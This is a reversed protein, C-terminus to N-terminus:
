WRYLDAVYEKPYVMLDAPLEVFGDTGVLSLFDGSGNTPRPTAWLRGWEDPVLCVPMFLTLPVDSRVAASLAFRDPRRAVEGAAHRIAPMVYRILCVLTSVPNGPLGFVAQGGPGIGFWLPKGPRQAVVHFIGRVGLETLIRPVFDFKGMSVGGSLIMVDHTALHLALRTRLKAEDDAIHDMGVREFGRSRLTAAMAYVNSRRVQQAAIPEGPEVLEDGTSIIMVSPDAAVTLRALGASAAVAIEPAGLVSGSTLMLSGLPGDVGRRQVNQFAPFHNSATLTARSDNVTYREMPIVVDTGHPLMAGTMVEIAHCEHSLTRPVGGAGQIGEIFFTSMGVDLARSNVAIGDMCVRDFPPNDREALVDQRLIRGVCKSLPRSEVPLGPMHRRIEADAEAPTIV